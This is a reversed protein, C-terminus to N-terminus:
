CSKQLKFKRFNCSDLDDLIIHLAEKFHDSVLLLADITNLADEDSFINWYSEGIGLWGLIHATGLTFTGTEADHISHWYSLSSGELEIHTILKWGNKIQIEHDWNDGDPKVVSGLIPKLKKKILDKFYKKTIKMESQVSKIDVIIENSYKSEVTTKLLIDIERGTLIDDSKLCTRHANKVLAKAAQHRDSEPLNNMANLADVAWHNNIKSILPFSQNVEREADIISWIYRQKFFKEQLYKSIKRFEWIEIEDKSLHPQPIDALIVSLLRHYKELLMFIAETTASLNKMSFNKWPDYIGWYRLFNLNETLKWSYNGMITCYCKLVAAPPQCLDITLNITWQNIEFIYILKYGEDRLFIDKFSIIKGLIANKIVVLNVPEIDEFSRAEKSYTYTDVIRRSEIFDIWKKDDTKSWSNELIELINKDIQMYERRVFTAILDLREELNLKEMIEIVEITSLSKLQRYLPFNNVVENNGESVIWDYMKVYFEQIVSTSNM